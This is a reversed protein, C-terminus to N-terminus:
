KQGLKQLNEQNQSKKGKKEINALNNKPPHWAGGRVGGGQMRARQSTYHKNNQPHLSRRQSTHLLDIILYKFASVNM